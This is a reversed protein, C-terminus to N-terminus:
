LMKLLFETYWIYLLPDIGNKVKTLRKLIRSVEKGIFYGYVLAM